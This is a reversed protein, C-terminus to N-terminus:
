VTDAAVGTNAIKTSSLTSPNRKTRECAYSDTVKIFLQDILQKRRHGRTPVFPILYCRM